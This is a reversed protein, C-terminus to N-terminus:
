RPTKPNMRTSWTRTSWTTYCGVKSRSGGVWGDTAYHGRRGTWGKLAMMARWRPTVEVIVRETTAGAMPDLVLEIHTDRREVARAGCNTPEIGGVKVDCGYGTIEAGQKVKWRGPDSGPALM